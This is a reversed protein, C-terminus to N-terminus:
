GCVNLIFTLASNKASLRIKYTDTNSLPAQTKVLAM